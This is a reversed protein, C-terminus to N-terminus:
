ISLHDPIVFKGLSAFDKFDVLSSLLINSIVKELPHFITYRHRFHANRHPFFRSANDETKYLTGDFFIFTASGMFQSLDLFCSLTWFIMSLVTLLIKGM